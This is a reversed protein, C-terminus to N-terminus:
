SMLDDDQGRETRTAERALVRHPSLAERRAGPRDLLRSRRGPWLSRAVESDLQEIVEDSASTARTMLQLLVGRTAMFNETKRDDPVGPGITDNFAEVQLEYVRLIRTYDHYLSITAEALPVPFHGLDGITADLAIRPLLFDRWLRIRDGGQPLRDALLDRNKQIEARLLVAARRRSHRPKWWLDLILAGGAGSLLSLVVNLADVRV